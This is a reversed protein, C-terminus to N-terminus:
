STKVATKNSKGNQWSLSIIKAFIYWSLDAGAPSKVCVVNVLSKSGEERELKEGQTINKPAKKKWLVILLALVVPLM